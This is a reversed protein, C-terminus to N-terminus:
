PKPSLRALLGAPPGGVFAFIAALIGILDAWKVLFDGLYALMTQNTLALLGGFFVCLLWVLVGVAIAWLLRMLLGIM